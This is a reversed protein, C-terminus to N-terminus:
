GGINQADQVYVYNICMCVDWASPSRGRRGPRTESRKLGDPIKRAILSSDNALRATPKAHQAANADDVQVSEADYEWIGDAM